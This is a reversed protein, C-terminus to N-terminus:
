KYVVHDSELDPELDSLCRPIILKHSVSSLVAATTTTTADYPLTELFGTRKLARTELLSLQQSLVNLTLKGATVAKMTQHQQTVM